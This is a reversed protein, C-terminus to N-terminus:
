VLAAREFCAPVATLVHLTLPHRWAFGADPSLEGVVESPAM